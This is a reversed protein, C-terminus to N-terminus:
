KIIEEPNLPNNETSDFVIFVFRDEGEYLYDQEIYKNGDQSEYTRNAVYFNHGSIEKEEIEISEDDLSIRLYEEATYDKELNEKYVTFVMIMNQFSEDTALCDYIYTYEEGFYYTIQENSLQTMGEPFELNIGESDVAFASDVGNTNIAMDNQENEQTFIIVCAIAISLVLVIVFTKISTLGYRYFTSKQAKESFYYKNSKKKIIKQIKLYDFIRRGKEEGFEKEIDEMILEKTITHNKSMADNREFIDRVKDIDEKPFTDNGAEQSIIKIDKDAVGNKLQKNLNYIIGGIVLVCFLLAVVYDTIIASTFEEYQYLIQLNEISIPMNEKAMLSIPIIIFMTVTISILSTISLIVPLKRDMKAKTIKYGYFSFLVILIALIAYMMNAFVYMLVWPIAGIFAGILAGIVGLLYKNKTQEEM